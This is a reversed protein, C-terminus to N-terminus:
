KIRLAKALKDTLINEGQDLLRRGFLGGHYDSGWTILLNHEEAFKRFPEAEARYAPQVEVGDIGLRLLEDMETMNIIDKNPHAIIAIGGAAHIENIAREATIATMKDEVFKGKTNRLYKNYLEYDLIKGEHKTFYDQCEKDQMMTYWVNMKGLRSKPYVGLVKELSIPVGKERLGDIRKACVQRQQEASYNLFNVFNPNNPDIGLGLIHYKDTSIETGPIIQVQLKEGWTRAEEYGDTKDHDSIALIEIGNIRANKVNIEPTGIGDSYFTHTHLDIYKNTM